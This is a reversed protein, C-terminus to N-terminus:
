RGAARAGRAAQWRRVSWGTIFERRQIRMGDGRPQYVGEFTVPLKCPRPPGKCHIQPGEDIPGGYTEDAVPGVPATM